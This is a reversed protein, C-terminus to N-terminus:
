PMSVIRVVPQYSGGSLTPVARDIDLKFPRSQRPELNLGTIEIREEDEPIQGSLDLKAGQPVWVFGVGLSVTHIITGGSNLLQGSVSYASPCTRDPCQQIRREVSLAQLAVEPAPATKGTSVAVPEIDQAHAEKGWLLELQYDTIGASAISVYFDLPAGPSVQPSESEEDKRLLKPLPYNSVGGQEGKRFGTLRVMIDEAPWNAESEIRGHIHLTNGDNLDDVVRLSFPSLPETPAKQLVAPPAETPPDVPAHSCAAFVALLVLPSIIRM